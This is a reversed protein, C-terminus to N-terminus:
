EVMTDKRSSVMRRLMFMFMLVFMSMFMIIIAVVLILCANRDNRPLVNPRSAQFSHSGRLPESPHSRQIDSRSPRCILNTYTVHM